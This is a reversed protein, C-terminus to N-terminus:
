TTSLQQCHLTHLKHTYHILILQLLIVTIIWQHVFQKIKIQQKRLSRLWVSNLFMSKSDESRENTLYLLTDHRTTHSIDFCMYSYSVTTSTDRDNNNNVTCREVAAKIIELWDVLRFSSSVLCPKCLPLHTPSSTPYVISISHIYTTFGASFCSTYCERCICHTTNNNTKSVNSTKSESQKSNKSEQV